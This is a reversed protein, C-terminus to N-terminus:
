DEGNDDEKASENKTANNVDIGNFTAYDYIGGNADSFKSMMPPIQDILTLVVSLASPASLPNAAIADTVKPAFAALDATLLGGKVIGKAYPFLGRMFIKSANADLKVGKEQLEIIKETTADSVSGVRAIVDSASIKDASYDAMIRKLDADEKGTVAAQFKLIAHGFDLLVKKTRDALASQSSELSSLDAGGGGGVGPIEVPLEPMGWAYVASPSIFFLSILLTFIKM